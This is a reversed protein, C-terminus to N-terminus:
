IVSNIPYTLSITHKQKMPQLYLEVDSVHALLQMRVNTLLKQLSAVYTQNEVLPLNWIIELYESKNQQLLKVSVTMDMVAYQAGETIIYEFVPQLSMSPIRPLYLDYENDIVWSVSFQDPVRIEEIKLYRSCLDIEDKVSVMQTPRLSTRFFASLDEILGPAKEDHTEVLYLLSNLSNFFFHPQMRSELNFVQTKLDASQKEVLQHQLQVYHLCVGIVFTGLFGHFFFQLVLRQTDWTQTKTVWHFLNVWLTSICIMAITLLWVCWVARKRPLSVLFSRSLELATIIIIGSSILFFTHYYVAELLTRSANGQAMGVEFVALFVGALSVFTATRIINQKNRFSPIHLPSENM